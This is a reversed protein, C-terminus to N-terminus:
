QNYSNHSRRTSQNLVTKVVNGLKHSLAIRDFRTSAEARAHSAKFRIDPQVIVKRVEDAVRQAYGKDGFGSYPILVGMRSLIDRTEGGVDTSIVFRNCALYEALKTITRMKGVEDPTQTSLCIDLACVYEPVASHPVAGTFIVRDAVGLRTAKDRLHALGTGGGVIIGRVPLDAILPMVEILDDGYCTQYKENWNLSGVVGLTLCNDVNLEHRLRSADRPQFRNLDVGNPIYSVNSFGREGYWDALGKGTCVVHEAMTPMLWEMAKAIQLEIWPRGMNRLLFFSPDGTDLIYPRGRLARHLMATSTSYGIDVCYVIDPDTREIFTTFGAFSGIRGGTRYARCLEYEEKLPEFLNSVRIGNAMRPTGNVIISVRPRKSDSMPESDGIYKVGM